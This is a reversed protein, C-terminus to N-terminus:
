KEENELMKKFHDRMHAPVSEPDSKYDELMRKMM